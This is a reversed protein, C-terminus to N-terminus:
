LGQGGSEAVLGHRMANVSVVRTWLFQKLYDPGGAQIGTGSLAPGGFPQIGVRAGTIKRNLYLNGVRYDSRALALHDPLRSYVGGTLAYDSDQAMALASAFDPAKLVAVVPAFIEERALRHHPEIGAFLTPPVYWGREPVRGQWYLRGEDRGIAIHGLAKRQAAEDIVPGFPYVPYEPPGWPLADAAEALRALLRDHVGTVAIVRSCASCKQGAYGFASAVIGAVAEDLDADADVVVANKGGMECVVRKVHRQGAGTAHATQLISLGVDRSGTFAIVHVGPHAVLHAAVAGPAALLPCADPPVGADVLARRFEFGVLLGPQAPKIIAANGAALAAASMGALIALPFNWPAIVLAVGLAEYRMANREGPFDRTPQWGDLRAAEDAYYRLYDIAEAVDADAERRNKAVSLVELTALDRRRTTLIDAARRLTEARSHAGRERWAPFAAEARGLLSEAYAADGLEVTGLVEDPAAPNRAVYQAATRGGELPHARPLSARVACLADDFAQQEDSRSFDILPQNFYDPQPPAATPVPPALDDAGHLYTQRLVSTSATNELLRRILYAIGITADGSPLYIRLAVGAAALADRLPEAMGYLLQAEWREHVVGLRRAEALAVAQSRLNHSAIAPHLVDVNQLLRRTIAEFHADTAAKDAFTPRPWNRQAAWAMEQDWYAGKVLRVGIRRAHAQAADLVRDLDAGTDPLYAQLAVSPQWAPDPWEALMDLFLDLILHKLEFQEMDVTLAAKHAIAQEMLPALRRFVRRRTGERDAPDFHPTLATLKLSLHPTGADGLWDLLQLNRVLYADAEAETLVAEGVADVTLGAPIRSLRRIARALAAPDEVVLFNQALRRVGLTAFAALSPRAALRLLAPRSGSLGRLYASLHEAVEQRTSLQPLVDVFQFLAERLVPDAMAGKMLWGAVGRYIAPVGTGARRRLEAGAAQVESEFGRDMSNM